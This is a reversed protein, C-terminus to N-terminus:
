VVIFYAGAFVLLLTGTVAWVFARRLSSADTRRQVPLLLSVISCIFTAGLALVGCIMTCLLLLSVNRATIAITANSFRGSVVDLTTTEAFWLLLGPMAAIIPVGISFPLGVSALRRKPDVALVLAIVFALLASVGLAIVLPTNLLHLNTLIRSVKASEADRMSAFLNMAGYACYAATIAPVVAILSVLGCSLIRSAISVEFQPSSEAADTSDDFLRITLQSDKHHSVENTFSQLAERGRKPSTDGSSRAKVFAAVMQNLADERSIKGDLYATWIPLEVKVLPQLAPRSFVGEGYPQFSPDVYRRVTESSQIFVLLHPAHQVVLDDTTFGAKLLRDRFEVLVNGKGKTELDFAHIAEHLVATMLQPGQFATVSIVCVGRTADKGWMTFGGPWPTEAVFYIRVTSDAEAMGLHGTFYNFCEEQKPALTQEVGAVAKEILVRHQPWVQKLFPEELAVLSQGLRMAKARLAVEEGKKTKYNEPFQSFAKEAAVSNEFEFPLQDILTLALPLQRAADVSQALAELEPVKESSSAFRYVFFYLDAFPHVRFELRRKKAPGASETNAAGALELKVPLLVSILALMMLSSILRKM